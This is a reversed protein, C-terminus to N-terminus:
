RAAVIPGAPFMVSSCAVDSGDNSAAGSGAPGPSSASDASM